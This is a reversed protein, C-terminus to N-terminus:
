ICILNYINNWNTLTLIKYGLLIGCAILTIGAFKYINKIIKDSFKNKNKNFISVIMFLWLFNGLGFGISLVIHNVLNIEYFNFKDVQLTFFALSPIFTPSAINALGVVLGVFFPGKKGIKHLVNEEKKSIEELKNNFSKKAVKFQSLGYIIIAIVLLLQIILIIIPHNASFNGIISLVASTAFIAFLCFFIDTTGSGISYRVGEKKGINMAMNIAGVAVPGPVVALVIGLIIGIIFSM